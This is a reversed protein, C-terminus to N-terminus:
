LLVWNNACKFENHRVLKLHSKNEKCNQKFRRDRQKMLSQVHETIYPRHKLSMNMLYPVLAIIFRMLLQALQCTKIFFIDDWSIDIQDNKFENNNFFKATANLFTM